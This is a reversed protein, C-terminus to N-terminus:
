FDDGFDTDFEDDSESSFLDDNDEDEDDNMIDEIVTFELGKELPDLMGNHSLDFLREFDFIGM